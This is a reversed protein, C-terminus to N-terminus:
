VMFPAALATPSSGIPQNQWPRSSRSCPRRRSPRRAPPAGPPPANARPGRRAARRARSPGPWAARGRCATAAALAARQRAAGDSATTPSPDEATTPRRPPSPSWGRGPRRRRGGGRATRRWRGAGALRIAGRACLAARSRAAARRSVRARRQDLRQPEDARGPGPARGGRREPADVFHRRESPAKPSSRSARTSAPQVRGLVRQAVLTASALFCSEVIRWVVTPRIKARRVVAISDSARRLPRATMTRVRPASSVMSRRMASCSTSGHRCSTRLATAWPMSGGSTARRGQPLGGLPVSRARRRALEAVAQADGDLVVAGADVHAVHAARASSAPRTVWAMASAASSSM